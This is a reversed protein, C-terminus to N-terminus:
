GRASGAAARLREVRERNVGFDRIGLRAGARVHILGAERDLVFEADDVFGLARSAFEAHLYGPGRTVIRSRPEAGVAAELAQWARAPDGAVALPAVHHADSAPVQSSVWNPRWDGGRLRGDKAGLDAPRKGALLGNAGAYALALGLLLLGALVTGLAGELVVKRRLRM